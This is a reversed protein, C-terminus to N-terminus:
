CYPSIMKWMLVTFEVLILVMMVKVSGQFIRLKKRPGWGVVLTGKRQEEMRKGGARDSAWLFLLHLVQGSVKQM